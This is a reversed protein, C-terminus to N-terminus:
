CRSLAVSISGSLPYVRIQLFHPIRWLQPQIQARPNKLNTPKPNHNRNQSNHPQSISFNSITLYSFQSIFEFRSKSTVSYTYPYLEFREECILNM